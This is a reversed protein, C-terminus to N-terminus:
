CCFAVCPGLLTAAEASAALATSPRSRWKASGAIGLVRVAPNGLRSIVTGTVSRGIAPRRQGAVAPRSWETAGCLEVDTKESASMQESRSSRRFSSQAAPRWTSLSRRCCACQPCGRNSDPRCWTPEHSCSRSHCGSATGRSPTRLHSSRDLPTSM